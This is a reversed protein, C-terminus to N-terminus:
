PLTNTSNCTIIIVAATTIRHLSPTAFVDSNYANIAQQAFSLTGGTIDLNVNVTSWGATSKAKYNL